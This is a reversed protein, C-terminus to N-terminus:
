VGDRAHAARTGAIEGENKIARPLTCPDQDRLPKGGAQTITAIVAEPMSQPDVLITKGDKAAASLAESFREYPALRVANGLHAKTEPGVKEPDIFLVATGDANLLAFSLALPTNPVDAGRVNLLWAISEPSTLAAMDASKARLADALEARKAASSKGAFREEHVVLPAKPAAPQDDWIADVPNSDLAKLTIGNPTLKGRLREVWASSHLWPDYGVVGGEPLREILWDSLPEESVHRIEYRERDVQEPAQLAYRGDVLLTAAETLIATQGASGTFGTLWALREAHPPLAEVQHADARPLIFGDVSHKALEERLATLRQKADAM